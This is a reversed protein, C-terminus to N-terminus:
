FKNLSFYVFLIIVVYVLINSEKYVQIQIYSYRELTCNLLAVELVQVRVRFFM